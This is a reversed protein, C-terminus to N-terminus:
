GEPEHWQHGCEGCTVFVDDAPPTHEADGPVDDVDDREGCKPCRDQVTDFHGVEPNSM